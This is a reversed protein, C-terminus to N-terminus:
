DNWRGREFWINRQIIGFRFSLGIVSSSYFRGIKDSSLFDASNQIDCSRYKPSLNLLLVQELKASFIPRYFWAIFDASKTTRRDDAKPKRCMLYAPHTLSHTLSRTYPRHLKEGRVLQAIPPRCFRFKACPYGLPLSSARVDFGRMACMACLFRAIDCQLSSFFLKRWPISRRMSLILTTTVANMASLLTFSKSRVETVIWAVQISADPLREM